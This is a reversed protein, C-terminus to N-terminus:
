TISIFKHDVDYGLLFLAKTGVAERYEDVTMGDRYKEFQAAADTGPRKPNNDRGYAKGEANKMLTIKQDGRFRGPRGKPETATKKAPAAKAKTKTKTDGGTAAAAETMNRKRIRVGDSRLLVAWVEPLLPELGRRRVRETGPLRAARGCEAALRADGCRRVVEEVEAALYHDAVEPSSGMVVDVGRPLETRAGRVHVRGWGEETVGVVSM